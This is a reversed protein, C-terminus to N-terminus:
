LVSENGLGVVFLTVCNFCIAFFSNFSLLLEMQDNIGLLLILKIM